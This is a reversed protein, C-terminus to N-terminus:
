ASALARARRVAIEANTTNVLTEQATQAFVSCGEIASKVHRFIKVSDIIRVDNEIESLKDFYSEDFDNFRKTEVSRAGRYDIYIIIM